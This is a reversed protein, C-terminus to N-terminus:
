KLDFLVKDRLALVDTVKFRIDFCKPIKGNVKKELAVVVDNEFKAVSQDLRDEDPTLTISIAAEFVHWSSEEESSGGTAKISAATTIVTQTKSQNTEAFDFELQESDKSASEVGKNFNDM